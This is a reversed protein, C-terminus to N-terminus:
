ADGVTVTVLGTGECDPCPAADLRGTGSCRHCPGQATQGANPEAEDGPLPANAAPVAVGKSDPQEAM